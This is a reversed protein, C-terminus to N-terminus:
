QHLHDKLNAIESEDNGVIVLDDVYILLCTYSTNHSKFFLAYNAHSQSYSCNILASTLKHYQDRNAQILGYLSKKLECVRNDGPPMMGLPLSMFIDEALDSHLFANSVDM